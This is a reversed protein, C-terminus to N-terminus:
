ERLLGGEGGPKVQMTTGTGTKGPESKFILASSARAPEKSRVEGKSRRAKVEDLVGPSCSGELFDARVQQGNQADIFVSNADGLNRNSTTKLRSGQPLTKPDIKLVHSMPKLGCYSYKGESDSIMSVGNELYLKVGPIGLEEADQVSNGNCDVFVKGVICADSTFVGETVKIGAAATNSRSNGSQAYARNIGDGQIAGVGLRVRYSLILLQNTALRGVNFSLNPGVGGQPDPLATQAANVDTQLRATGPIYRFGAPLRDIVNVNNLAPGSVHRVTVTYRVADGIEAATKDVSKTTFLESPQAPDLPIHNNVVQDGGVNLRLGLFYKTDQGNAPATSQPQVAFANGTSPVQAEDTQAPIQVSPSILGQPATVELSYSGQPAGPLLWFEYYGNASTTQIQQATGGLLHRVPDFGTPGVFKVIAGAVPERTVSNYVVGSPDLPLSQDSTNVGPLLPLAEIIGNDTKGNKQKPDKSLPKGYLVNNAPDIFRVKYFTKPDASSPVLGGISYSGDAGTLSSAVVNDEFDLVEVKFGPVAPESAGRTRDHDNDRWVQGSLSSAVAFGVPSAIVQSGEPDAFVKQPNNRTTAVKGAPASVVVTYRTGPTVPAVYEGKADTTVVIPTGGGEPTITVTLGAIPNENANRVRDANDDAYVVGRLSPAVISRETAIDNNPNPDIISAPIQLSATNVISQQADNAVKATLRIIVKNADGPAISVNSLLVSNAGAADTGPKTTDCDAQGTVSCTWTANLLAAPLDDKVGVGSAMAPGKNTVVIEYVVTGGAQVLAAGDVRKKTITLDALPTVKTRAVSSNNDPSPDIVGPATAISATNDLDGSASNTLQGQITFVVSAGAPLSPITASVANGAVGVTAPCQGGGQQAGCAATVGTVVGPVNDTMVSDLATSPGFNTVKITYSIPDAANLAPAVFKEIKLDAVPTVPTAVSGADNGPNPDVTGAPVAASATNVISGVVTGIVTGSVKFTVTANAPLTPISASVVGNAAVNVASPCVAGGTTGSCVATVSGISSPVPDSLTTGDANSPGANRVTITYVIPGGAQAAAQGTKVVSVDAVPVIPTTASASNNAANPDIVGPAVSVSAANVVNGIANGNVTGNITLIVSGGAPLSAVMASVTNGTVSLGSPCVAGGTASSCTASVGSVNAPVTDSFSTNNAASPGDNSVVLQWSIPAGANVTAPGTKAIRVDAVPQVPSNSLATNNTNDPDIVGAPPAISVSNTISGTAGGQVTGTVTFTATSGAPMTTLIASVTNGTININAPCVAGGTTGNCTAAISTLASPVPDTIIAGNAASPGQNIAIITYSVPAGANASSPGTKTVRLDAVPQVATSVTSTNNATDPDLVGPAVAITATNVLPSPADGAVSGTMNFFVAGGSPLSPISANVQNGSVSVTPPCTAGGSAGGCLATVGTIGNPVKDAFTTDNAASPGNNVVRVTYTIQGGANVLAPATKVVQVDAVPNVPTIVSGSNNSPDPDVTGAPVTVSANNQINGVANGAVTGVVNITLQGGAPLTPILGSVTNGAVSVTAPCAAGGAAGSCTAVLNTVSSPVIDSFTTGNAASPGANRIRLQYSIGAGANVAAPGTKVLSLDSVPVVATSATATNSPSSDTVNAPPTLTASNTITGTASGSVTGTITFVVSSGSPLVPVSSGVTNGSVSIASSGPCAAGGLASGCTASVGTINAPVVDTFATGGAASPGNNTLTVSYSIPGGAQATAPASKVIVLDAVANVTTSALSANSSTDPDTVNAPPTITATNDIAGTAGAVVQGSVVFTMSSGAPLSPISASVNNGTVAITSPCVAGSTTAGCTAAVGNLQAPVLDAFQAGSVASPGANTVVVSYSLTQLPQVSAPATKAIRLDAVLNVATNATSTNNPTPDVVSAAVTATATNAITGTASGQVTGRVTISVSGGNPLTPISGGVSNGVVTVSAPCVAGGTPAACFASVGTITSPVVDSFATDDASSPGSNSVVITYEISDGANVTAPATKVIGVEATPTVATIETSDNNTLDPDITGVPPAIRATNTINGSASPAVTGAVTITVSSGSPLSPIPASVNNATVGISPPCVAGGTENSCSIVVSGIVAPVADTFLANTATSPGANRIVIAYSIATGPKVAAPGTKVISLDAVPVVATTASSNNGPTPDNVNAPLTVSATNTLSNPSSGSVTGSITFTASAGAPLAPITASVANGSVGISSPCTAGATTSGCTATIGVIGTPVNDSFATGDAASPGANSVVVSYTIVSGANVTAPGTKLVTVDATLNVGGNATATNNALNPDTTGSPPAVVVTNAVNATASDAVVGNVVISVKNGAGANLQINSLNIAGSGTAGAGAVSTDCDATGTVSCIWNMSALGAPLADTLSAGTVNSPGANTMEILYQVPQGPVVNGTPTVKVKTVALDATSSLNTTATSSNNGSTPDTVGSPATVSATNSISGTASAIVTGTITITVSAGSPLTPISGSVLNSAVSVSSPCVAGATAAGCSATVGSISAAVQDSFTSGNAASPGANRILLTYTIPSGAVATANATKVISVDATPTIPTTATSSNNGPTPDTVNSPPSVQATNSISGTANAAVTGSITIIVSGGSPLTPVLGSVNNGAVTVSAPCVAGGLASACTATVGSIQSPVADSFSTGNAASPGANSIKVQYSIVSGPTFSSPGTKSASVDAVLNVNTSVTSINDTTDPDTIGSPLTVSATNVVTGSASGIVNATVTFDIYGGAPLNTILASVANGSLGVSAPCLAGGMAGACTAVAGSLSSPLNDNFTTGNANSPGANSVRVTYTIVGGADVSLPASKVVKVNAVPNVTTNTSSTNNSTDPDNVGGATTVTATNALNGSASGNVTGSIRIVLSSGAPLSAITGSVTNANISPTVCAAGGVASDCTAVLNSIAASLADSFATNNADSPGANTIQLTYSITGGANVTAPASKVVKVDAVASVPTNSSSSNDSPDPDTVGTPPTITATNTISGSAAGTVTGAVTITVAGGAPLVPVLGTVNNGAVTVSPPCVAGGSALSCSATVGTISAPVSDSFSTGNAASPGANSIVINYVISAGASIAAPGTKAVSIRAVSGVNTTVSSSNNGPNSDPNSAPSTVQATNAINGSASGSVTGTVQLVISSGAPMFPLTASLNTGSIAVGIPCSAGGTTSTCTMAVGSLDAPSNDTFSANAVDSPGANRIVITYTILGGANISAPGSKVVSLDASPNVAGATNSTNNSSDPDTIGSPPSASASNVLTGSASASVTGTITITVSSNAPLSPVSGNVTNGAVSVSAPCVAGGAASGCSASLGTIATPVTDTFTTGDASSPGGNRVVINYSVTAGPVLASPGTKAVSIDAVGGLSTNATSSSNGSNPDTTGTPPAASATNSINGTASSAVNGNVTIVVSGGAPLTPIAGSVNNGAVTIAGPCAAGGAPSSCSATVSTVSSPVSDSFTTGDGNSPGDNRIVIRYSIAGGAVATAPASKTVVIDAIPSINARSNTSNNAPTPDTVGSPVTATAINNISGTANAAVTGSVTFTVSGGAPLTALTAAVTNGTTSVSAPCAAGGATATCSASNLTVFSPMPDSLTTGNAASPGANRVEVTYIVAGSPTVVAPGTKVVSVDAVLGVPNNSTATTTPAGGPGDIDGVATNIVPANANANVKVKYVVTASQGAAIVGAAQGASNILATNAYPMAGAADAISVGNLITSGTVYTVGVPITDQMTSGVSDLTGDNSAVVTYTIVDNPVISGAPNATKSMAMRATKTLVPNTTISGKTIPQGACSIFEYDWSATNAYQGVAPAAPLSDVRAKFVVVKKAGAAITGVNAGTIINGANAVGDVTLSGAVISLGVPLNDKFVLNNADATGATNDLTITYSLVDGIKTAAKDVQKVTNPFIPAGVNIQLGLANIMYNDGSTTGQAFASTQNNSLLSSIDVNTIDYGQRAGSTDAGPTHNASGFTGTTNLNGADDNIQGAFFNGVLNRPGSLASLGAVTAGFKMQDGTIASDGELASVLLRGSRPGTPPTCFGSVTAAASGALEAGVFVTLNRAPLSSNSYVVALTWGASNANNEADGQTGPVGGVTYTGAGGAKIIATVDQSRVYYCPGASCTGNAGATGLTQTTAAAPAVLQSSVPSKLTVSDGLNASVNEGGYSWSGSWILEAYLVTSGAPIVLQAASSNLKWNATTGNPYTGDKLSNDTTIFTGIAGATGPSNSNAAKDLGLTNGTFTVAGSAITNYRNVYAASASQFWGLVAMLSLLLFLLKTLKILPQNTAIPSDKVTPKM